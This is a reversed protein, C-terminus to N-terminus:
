FLARFGKPGIWKVTHAFHQHDAPDRVITVSIRQSLADLYKQKHRSVKNPLYRRWHYRQDFCSSNTLYWDCGVLYIEQHGLSEAVALALTGSCFYERDLDPRQWTSNTFRGRTWYQIGPEIQISNICQSDFACVHHVPRHELIYNCGIEVTQPPISYFERASPGNFWVIVM